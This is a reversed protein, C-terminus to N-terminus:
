KKEIRMSSVGRHNWNITTHVYVGQTHVHEGQSHQDNRYVFAITVNLRIHGDKRHNITCVDFGDNADRPLRSQKWGDHSIPHTWTCLWPILLSACSGSPVLQGGCCSGDAAAAAAALCAATSLVMPLSTLPARALGISSPQLWWRLGSFGALPRLLQLKAIAM